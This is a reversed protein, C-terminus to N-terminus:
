PVIEDPISSGGPGTHAIKLRAVMKAGHTLAIQDEEVVADDALSYDADRLDCLLRIRIGCCLLAIPNTDINNRFAPELASHRQLFYFRM